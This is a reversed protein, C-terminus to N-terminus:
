KAKIDKSVQSRTVSLEVPSAAFLNEIMTAAEDLDVDPEESLLDQFMTQVRRRRERLVAKEMTKVSKTRRKSYPKFAKDKSMTQLVDNVSMKSKGIRRVVEAYIIADEVAATQTGTKAGGRIQNSIKRSITASETEIHLTDNHIERNIAAKTVKASWKQDLIWEIKKCLATAAAERVEARHKVLGLPTTDEPQLNKYDQWPTERQRPVTTQISFISLDTNPEDDGFPVVPPLEVITSDDHIRVFDPLEGYNPTAKIKDLDPKKVGSSRPFPWVKSRKVQRKGLKKGLPNGKNKLTKPSIVKNGPNQSM